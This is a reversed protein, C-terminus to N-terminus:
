SGAERGGPRTLQGMYLIAGAGNDRVVFIFPRAQAPGEPSYFWDCVNGGAQTVSYSSTIAGYSNTWVTAPEDLTAEMVAATISTAGVTQGSFRFETHRSMGELRLFGLGNIGSFDPNCNETCVPNDGRYADRIGLSNLFSDLRGRKDFVFEPVFVETDVPELAGTLDDLHQALNGLVALYNGAGPTILLLSQNGNGLPLEVVSLLDDQYFGFSGQQRLMPVWYQVGDTTEFLGEFRDAATLAMPWDLDLRAVSALVLRTKRSDHQEIYSAEIPVEQTTDRFAWDDIVDWYLAGGYDGSSPADSRFAYASLEAEFGLSLVDVYGSLFRYGQQGWIANHAIFGQGVDVTRNFGYNDRAWSEPDASADPGFPFEALTEARAGSAVMALTQSFDHVSVVTNSTDSYDSGYQFFKVALENNAQVLSSYDATALNEEGDFSRPSFDEVTTLGADGASSDPGEACGGLLAVLASLAIVVVGRIKREGAVIMRKIRM